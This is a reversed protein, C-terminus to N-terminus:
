ASAEVSWAMELFRRAVLEIARPQIAHVVMSRSLQLVSAAYVVTKQQCYWVDLFLAIRLMVPENSSRAFAIVDAVAQDFMARLTAGIVLTKHQYHPFMAKVGPMQALVSCEELEFLDMRLSQAVCRAYDDNSPRGRRGKAM